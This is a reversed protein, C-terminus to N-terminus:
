QGRMESLVKEEFEELLGVETVHIKEDFLLRTGELGYKEKLIELSAIELNIALPILVLNGETESMLEGAFRSFVEQKQKESNDQEDYNYLYVLTHFEPCREKLEMSNVWFITRLLDYIRHQELLNNKLSRSDEYKALLLSDEYIKNGFEMNKKISYECSFESDKIIDSLTQVDLLNTRSSLYKDQINTMRADEIFVGLLIGLGFIFLAMILAELFLINNKNKM